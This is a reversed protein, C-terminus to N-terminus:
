SNMRISSLNLRLHMQQRGVTTKTDTLLPVVIILAKMSWHHRTKVDSVNMYGLIVSYTFCFTQFYLLVVFVVHDINMYMERYQESSMLRSMKDGHHQLLFFLIKMNSLVLIICYYDIIVNGGNKMSINCYSQNHLPWM